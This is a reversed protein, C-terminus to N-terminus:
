RWTDFGGAKRHQCTATGYRGSCVSNGRRWIWTAGNSHLMEGRRLGAEGGLLGVVSAQHSENGLEALLREYEEFDYFRLESPPVPVLSISCPMREIVGLKEATRLLWSLVVLINNV